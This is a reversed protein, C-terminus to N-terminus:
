SWEWVRGRGSYGRVPRDRIRGGSRSPRGRSNRQACDGQAAGAMKREYRIRLDHLRDRQRGAAGPERRFRRRGPRHCQRIRDARHPDGATAAGCNRHGYRRRPRGGAARGVRDRAQSHRRCQGLPYRDAPQSGRELGIAPAGRVAGRPPSTGGCRGRAYVHARRHAARAAGTPRAGGAAM